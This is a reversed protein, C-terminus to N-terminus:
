SSTRYAVLEDTDLSGAAYHCVVEERLEFIMTGVTIVDTSSHRSRCVAGTSYMDVIDKLSADARVMRDLQDLREVSSDFRVSEHAPAQRLAHNTHLAREGDHVMTIGAASAEIASSRDRQALVYSDGSALPTRRLQALAEDVTRCRLLRPVVFGSPLGSVSHALQSLTTVCVALGASNVGNLALLGALSPALVELGDDDLYRLMVQHGDFHRYLDETQGALGRGRHNVAFASCRESPGPGGCRADLYWWAEDMLQWAFVDALPLAAGEAIGRVEELLAPAHREAADRFGNGHWLEDVFDGPDTRASVVDLWGRIGRHILDRVAEGHARGREQPPGSLCVEPIM